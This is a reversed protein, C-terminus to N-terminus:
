DKDKKRYAKWATFGIYMMSGRAGGSKMLGNLNSFGLFVPGFHGALGISPRNNGQIFSIPLSLGSDEDEFRPTIMFTNPQYMDLPQQDRSKFRSTRAVNLFFGHFVQLDAELHLAQPLRVNQAFASSTDGPFLSMFGEPGRDSITELETQRIVVDSRSGRAVRSDATKYRVSGIDTLSGALRVLYDPSDNYAEKRGNWVAGLEYSFGLDYAWGTGYKGSDFLTGLGMKRTPTSYGTEYALNNVELQSVDPNNDVPNISYQDANGKLYAVRAGFVRKVTAGVRFKHGEIDLLQGGWSFSVDSFSQQVLSFDGWAANAVPPTSGTDLRRKYLNTIDGPLNRGQVFGRTRLQVAVAHYKGLAFSVSPWRIEGTLFIPDQYTLSGM